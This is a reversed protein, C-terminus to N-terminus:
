PDRTEVICRLLAGALYDLHRDPLPRREAIWPLPAGRGKLHAATLRGYEYALAKTGRDIFRANEGRRVSAYGERWARSRVMAEADVLHSPIQVM